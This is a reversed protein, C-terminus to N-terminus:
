NTAQRSESKDRPSLVPTKEDEQDISPRDQKVNDEGTISSTRPSKEATHVSKMSALYSPKEPPQAQAVAIGLLALSAMIPVLASAWQLRLQWRRPGEAERLKKWARGLAGRRIPTEVFRYSLDALLLTAGLRLALLPVGDFPVDLDPRTVMFVPWHWLYIGYSRVGIWRLPASGLIHAGILTYPNVVAMITATTALVVLPFGGRYLFPQFEGLHLFFWILAGLAAIGVIDLLLPATWGWRRRLRGRGPLELRYHRPDAPRPNAGPFWRTPWVCWLCCM